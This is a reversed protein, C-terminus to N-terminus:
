CRRWRPSCFETCSAWSYCPALRLQQRTSILRSVRWMRILAPFDFLGWIATMVVAALVAKPYEGIFGTLFLLFALTASAFVLALPTRAGARDNVASQSLGGAVPYGHGLAVALNAAGIGLLEQRPDIPYRHKPAFTRAASIGEIYALLLCGAALAFIGESTACGCRRVRWPPCVPHSKAQSPCAALAPCVLHPQLSSRSPWLTLAIRAKRADHAGRVRDCRDRHWRGDDRPPNAQGTQGILLLVREIFNHGGGAM